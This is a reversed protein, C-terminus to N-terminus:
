FVYLLHMVKITAAVGKGDSEKAVLKMGKLAAMCKAYGIYEKYQVFAEFNLRSGFTFTQFNGGVVGQM